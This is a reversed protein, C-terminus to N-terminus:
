KKKGKKVRRKYVSIQEDVQIGWQLHEAKVAADLFENLAIAREGITRQSFNGILHRKPLIPIDKKKFGKEKVLRDCLKRFTSYRKWCFLTGYNTTQIELKYQVFRKGTRSVVRSDVIKTSAIGIEQPALMLNLTLLIM